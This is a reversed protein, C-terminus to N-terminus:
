PWIVESTKFEEPYVIEIEGDVYEAIVGKLDKSGWLAQHNKNFRYVGGAGKFGGSELHAITSEANGKWAQAAIIVADYTLLGAFNNANEGFRKRYDEFYLKTLETKETKELGACQFAIYNLNLRELTQPLALVGGVSYILAEGGSKRYAKVFQIATGSPDGVIVVDNKSTMKAVREAKIAFDDPSLRSSLYYVEGIKKAKAKGEFAKVMGQNFTKLPDYGVFYYREAGSIKLFEGTLIGWYTTNYSNRFVYRNGEEVMKELQLTSAVSAIYVKKMEEATKACVVAQDSSYAGVIVDAQKALEMFASKAQEPTSGGDAFVVKVNYKSLRYKKIHEEALLASNKMAKGATSFIGTEPVIVGITLTKEEQQVCGMFLMTSTILCMLLIAKRMMVVKKSREYLYHKYSNHAKIM